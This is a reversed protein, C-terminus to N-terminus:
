PGGLAGPHHPEAEPVGNLADPGSGFEVPMDVAAAAALVDNGHLILATRPLGSWPSQRGADRGFAPVIITCSPFDPSVSMQDSM